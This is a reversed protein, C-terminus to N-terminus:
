TLFSLVKSLIWYVGMQVGSAIFIGGIIIAFNAVGKVASNSKAMLDGTLVKHVLILPYFWAVVPILMGFSLIGAILSMDSWTAFQFGFFKVTVYVVGRGYWYIPFILWVWHYGRIGLVSNEKCEEIQYNDGAAGSKYAIYTTLPIAVISIIVYETRAQVVMSSFGMLYIFFIWFIVSPINAVSAVRGGSGRAIAGSLFGALATSVVGSFLRWIYHDGWGWERPDETIGSIKMNSILDADFLYATNEQFAAIFVIAYLNYAIFSLIIRKWSCSVKDKKDWTEEM